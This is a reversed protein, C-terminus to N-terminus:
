ECDGQSEQASGDSRCDRMVVGNHIAVLDILAGLGSLHRFWIVKPMETFTACWGVTWYLRRELRGRPLTAPQSATPSIAEEGVVRWRASPDSYETSSHFTTAPLSLRPLASPAIRVKRRPASADGPRPAEPCIRATARTPSRPFVRRSQRHVELYTVGCNDPEQGRQIRVVAPMQHSRCSCVRHGCLVTHPRRRIPSIQFSRSYRACKPSRVSLPARLDSGFEDKARAAIKKLWM